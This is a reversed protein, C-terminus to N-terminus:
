NSVSTVVYVWRVTWGLSVQCFLSFLVFICCEKTLPAPSLKSWDLGTLIWFKLDFLPFVTPHPPVSCKAIVM